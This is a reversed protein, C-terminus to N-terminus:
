DAPPAPPQPAVRPSRGAGLAIILGVIALIGGAIALGSWRYGEMATSIGMAIIPVLVSSYAAKAPGVARIIGFYLFFALASAILGLYIVGAWYGPRSEFVPAGTVLYAFVGDV